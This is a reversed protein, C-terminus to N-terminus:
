TSSGEFWTQAGNVVREAWQQYREIDRHQARIGAYVTTARVSHVRTEYQPSGDPLTPAVIAPTGPQVFMASASPGVDFEIRVFPTIIALSSGALVLSSNPPLCIQERPMPGAVFVNGSSALMAQLQTSTVITCETPRSLPQITTITGVSPGRVRVESVQWDFQQSFLYAALSWATMDRTLKEGDGKFM